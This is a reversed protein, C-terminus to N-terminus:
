GHATRSSMGLMDHWCVQQHAPSFQAYDDMLTTVAEGFIIAPRARKSHKIAVHCPSQLYVVM